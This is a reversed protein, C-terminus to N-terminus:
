TDIGLSISHRQHIWTRCRSRCFIEPRGEGVGQPRDQNGQKSRRHRRSNAKDHLFKQTRPLCGLRHVEAIRPLDLLRARWKEWYFFRNKSSREPQGQRITMERLWLAHVMTVHWVGPQHAGINLKEIGSIEFANAGSLMKPLSSALEALHSETEPKIHVEM